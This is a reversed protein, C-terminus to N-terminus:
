SEDGYHRLFLEELTPPTSVLSRVGCDVLRRLVADINATDVDLHVKSGDVRVGHVGAIEALGAPPRETEAVISTRTLQRLSQM